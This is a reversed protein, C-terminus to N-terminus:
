CAKKELTLGLVESQRLRSILVQVYESGRELRLLPSPRDHGSSALLGSSDSMKVIPSGVNGPQGGGTSTVAVVLPCRSAIKKRGAM